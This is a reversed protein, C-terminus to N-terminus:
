SEPGKGTRARHAAMASALVEDALGAPLKRLYRPKDPNLGLKMARGLALRQTVVLEAQPDRSSEVLTAGTDLIQEGLGEPAEGFVWVIRGPQAVTIPGRRYELMPYAEAWSASSERFKLAAERALWFTWGAGLFTVQEASVHEERLREQLAGRAQEIVPAMDHGLWARHLSLVSTAFRTQAYGAEDAFPLTIQEDCLEGITSGETGVFALTPVRGGLEHLMAVVDLTDGSRSLVVVRDFERQFPFESAVFGDSRGHGHDERLSAMAEAINWATGCGVYAVSEGPRPLLDSVEDVMAVAREWCDPQSSIEEDVYFSM